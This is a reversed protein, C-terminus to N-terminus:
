MAVTTLKRCVYLNPLSTHALMVVSATNKSTILVFTKFTKRRDGICVSIVEGGGEWGAFTTQFQNKIYVIYVSVELRLVRLIIGLFRL